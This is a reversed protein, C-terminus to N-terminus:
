QALWGQDVMAATEPQTSDTEVMVTLGPATRVCVVLGASSSACQSSGVAVPDSLGMSDFLASSPSEERFVFLVAVTGPSPSGYGAVDFAEGHAESAIATRARAVAETIKSDASRPLGGLAEPLVVPGSRSAGTGPRSLRWSAGAVALVLLGILIVAVVAGARSRGGAEAPAATDDRVPLAAPPASEDAAPVADAGPVGDAAPLADVDPVTGSSPTPGLAVALAPATMPSAALEPAPTVDPTMTALRTSVRSLVVLNAVAAVALLGYMVIGGVARQRVGDVTNGSSNSVVEATAYAALNCTLWVGWWWAVVRGRQPPEPQPTGAAWLDNMVQAPLVLNAFPVFWGGIAWGPGRRLVMPRERKVRRASVFMWGLLAAAALVSVVIVTIAGARVTADSAAPDGATVAGPNTEIQGILLVRQLCAVLAFTNALVVLVWAAIAVGAWGRLRV